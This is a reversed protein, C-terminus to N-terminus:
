ATYDLPSTLERGKEIFLGTREISLRLVEEKKLGLLEKLVERLKARGRGGIRLSVELSGDRERLDIVSPRLDVERLEGGRESRIVVSGRRLFDRLAEPPVSVPSVEYTALNVVQSLSKAKPLIPKVELAEIGPPLTSNLRSKLDGECPKELQIDFFEGSSTFGLSLPPSFAVKPRPTFGRTYSVPLEARRIARLIARILDLHSTFQVEGGKSFKVRYRSRSAAPASLVRKGRGYVSLRDGNKESLRLPLLGKTGDGCVGCDLCGAIRCDSTREERLAREREEWLFDGSVGSSIHSWPLPEGRTRKRLYAEPEVGAREFSSEWLEFRFHESWEDLRCGAKWAEEVVKALERGGRSFVGELCSITPDRWKVKVNKRALSRRLFDEKRRLEEMHDQPEWQFPTHPRPVFPSISVKILGGRALKTVRRTLDVIGQLDDSEETPLGIMFYLKMHKWGFRFALEVGRLLSDATVDKNLVNRLRQTGAEPALTLSGRRVERLLHLLTQTLGDGRLSPLSIAVRRARLLHNLNGLLEELGPYDTASLSLLSLEEWGTARLGKEALRLVSDPSRGRVPRYITGAQCFRCGRTCGRMIELILRDHTIPILPLVPHSPSSDEALETLWRRRVVRDQHNLSPVYVGDIESLRSLLEARKLGGRRWEKVMDVTELIVEEGEGICFCDFFDAVPEPNFACAGGGVVLPDNEGREHSHLPVAGLDLMNLINTYTLEYPLSFGLIDFQSIPTKSELSYLPISRKRFQEEGDVWPSFVRECVVDHRSNLVHYLIRLGFNSMGIEYVDPYALVVRVEAESPDKGVSNLEGGVYRGPKLLLPLIRRLESNM